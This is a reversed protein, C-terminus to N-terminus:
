NLVAEQAAAGAASAAAARRSEVAKLAATCVMLPAGFGVAAGSRQFDASALHQIFEAPSKWGDENGVVAFWCGNEIPILTINMKEVVEWAWEMEKTYSRLPREGKPTLETLVRKKMYVDHGMVEKAIACDIERGPRM